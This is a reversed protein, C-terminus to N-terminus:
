KREEKNFMDTFLCIFEIIVLLTLAVGVSLWWYVFGSLLLIVGIMVMLLCMCILIKANDNNEDAM